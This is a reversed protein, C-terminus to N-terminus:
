EKETINPWDQERQTKSAQRQFSTVLSDSRQPCASLTFTTTWSFSSIARQLNWINLM